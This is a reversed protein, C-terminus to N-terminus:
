LSSFLTLTDADHKRELLDDTILTKEESFKFEEVWHDVGFFLPARNFLRVFKVYASEPIVEGIIVSNSKKPSFNRSLFTGLTTVSTKKKKKKKHGKSDPM